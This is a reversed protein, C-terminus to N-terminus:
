EFMKLTEASLKDLKAQSDALSEGKVGFYFKIKPETGSPRVCCWANDELEYYLVNSSPLGTPATEGTVMDKRTDNKYDRIALVKYDGIQAPAKERANSMITDIQAAGDIGKLTMTSIGERYYGYKEYMDIMGDWLTKGQSKYFAAVECLMCVAAPADKDRAYTGPLCGYSEEMGFVYNNCGTKEFKLMQEGIYKFGTLVEILKVGYASAIAKAMDTSVISEVLAPNEPMTNNKTKESLIYEAILMASMNGTFTVYEGTKTDKCYVGLRDADPDTALVIDADKEKALKLALEWADPNEPNPYPATPFNGDAVAQQPEIYVNEFGLDSLVRKVPRLGTGHLPTYVIKIDKAMSKIIEPHISLKRLESFYGEEVEDNIVNYLGAKVAEEKDMTKVMDISTVKAVEAMISTDHPPTVQAGDEWYVKYGNYERPNHSATIVVGALTGLTRVAYSLEPVPALQPFVYTKIGNANLCLATADTFEDHMNRSDHAIAVGRKAAEEGQSLIYNALGQTAQRVTYINMRNTGAGIVGRLGATGFELTRYFRDEIEKDNGELAKLEARTAEDFYPDTCWKEYEARFDM